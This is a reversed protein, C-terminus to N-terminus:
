RDSRRRRVGWSRRRPGRAPHVPGFVVVRDRDDGRVPLLDQPERDGVVRGPQAGHDLPQQGSVHGLDPDFAGVARDDVRQACGPQDDVDDWGALQLVQAAAVPRGPVVVVPEIGVDQGVHDAGVPASQARQQDVGGAVVASRWVTRARRSRTAWRTATALWSRAWRCIQKGPATPSNASISESM